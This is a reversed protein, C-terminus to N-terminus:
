DADSEPLTVFTPPFSFLVRIREDGDLIKLESVPTVSLENAILALPRVRSSDQQQSKNDVNELDIFLDNNTPESEQSPVMDISNKKWFFYGVNRRATTQLVEAADVMSLQLKAEWKDVFEELEAVTTEAAFYALEDRKFDAPFRKQNLRQFSTSLEREIDIPPDASVFAVFQFSDSRANAALEALYAESSFQEEEGKRSYSDRQNSFAAEVVSQASSEAFTSDLDTRHKVKAEGESEKLDRHQVAELSGDAFRNENRWGDNTLITVFLLVAVALSIPWFLFHSKKIKQRSISPKRVVPSTQRLSDSVRKAFRDDLEFSPLESLSKKLKSISEITEKLDESESVAKEVLERESSPLEDDLYGSLLEDSFEFDRNKM